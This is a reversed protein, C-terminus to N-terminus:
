PRSRESLVAQAVRTGLAPPREDAALPCVGADLREASGARLWSAPVGREALLRALEARVASGAAERDSCPVGDLVLEGVHLSIRRPTM